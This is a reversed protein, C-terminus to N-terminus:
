KVLGIKEEIIAPRSTVRSTKIRGVYEGIIGLFLFNFAFNVLLLVIIAVIGEQFERALIFKLYLFYFSVGIAAVAILISCFLAFRLPLTTGDILSDFAYKFYSPLNFKTSGRLRARRKYPVGVSKFGLDEILGSLHPFFYDRESIETIVRRDILWAGSEMSRTQDVLADEISKYVKRLVKITFSESREFRSGFVVKAGEEWPTILDLILEPPDQLDCDFVALAAWHSPANLIGTYVSKMVGFNKEYKLAHVNSNEKNLRRIIQFSNDQSDNDLFLFEIQFRKGKEAFLMSFEEFFIEINEAEEYVPCLIGIKQTPLM